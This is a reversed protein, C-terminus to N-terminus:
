SESSPPEAEAVRIRRRQLPHIMTLSAAAIEGTQALTRVVGDRSGVHIRLGADDALPAAAPGPPM